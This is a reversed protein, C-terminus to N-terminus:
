AEESRRREAGEIISEMTTDLAKAIVALQAIYVNSKGALIRQMTTANIGTAEVLNAQTLRKGKYRAVLEDAIARNIARNIPDIEEAPV